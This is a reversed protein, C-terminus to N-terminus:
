ADIFDASTTSESHQSEEDPEPLRPAAAAAAAVTDLAADMPNKEFDAFSPDEDQSEHGVQQKPARKRQTKAEAQGGYGSWAVGNCVGKHRLM